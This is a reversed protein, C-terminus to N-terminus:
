LLERYVAVTSEACKKWTFKQRFAGAASPALRPRESLLLLATAITAPDPNTIRVVADSDLEPVVGVPASAAQVGIGLAEVVPFGFGEYFSPYVV